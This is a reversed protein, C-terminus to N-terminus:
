TFRSVVLSTATACMPGCRATWRVMVPLSDDDTAAKFNHRRM